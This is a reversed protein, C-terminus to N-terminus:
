EEEIEIGPPLAARVDTVAADLADGSM